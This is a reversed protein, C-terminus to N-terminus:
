QCARQAAGTPPRAEKRRPHYYANLNDLDVVSRLNMASNNAACRKGIDHM